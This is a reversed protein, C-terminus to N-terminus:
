EVRPCQCSHPSVSRKGTFVLYTAVFPFALFLVEDNQCKRLAVNTEALLMNRSATGLPLFTNSSCVVFKTKWRSYRQNQQRTKAAIALM